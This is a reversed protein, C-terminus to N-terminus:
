ARRREDLVRTRLRGQPADALVACATRGPEGVARGGPGPELVGGDRGLAEGRIQGREVAQEAIGVQLAHRVAVEPLAADVQPHAEPEIHGTKLPGYNDEGPGLKTKRHFAVRKRDCFRNIITIATSDDGGPCDRIDIVFGKLERFERSIKELASILKRKRVDELELIRLYGVSRSRCYHLMWADTEKPRGFGNAVLTKGSTKFLQKIEKKTFEQWFKPKKEPNFHRKKGDIKATIGVHGDNLPDLMECLIDFLEEDTTETTVKPRYTKYQKEWDVKRLEFFPYREYFTKWLEEFNKEADRDIM